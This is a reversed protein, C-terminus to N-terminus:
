VDVRGDERHDIRGFGSNGDAVVGHEMVCEGSVTALARQDVHFFHAHDGGRRRGIEDRILLRSRQEGVVGRGILEVVDLLELGISGEARRDGSPGDGGGLSSGAGSGSLRYRRSMPVSSVSVWVSVSARGARSPHCEETGGLPNALRATVWTVLLLGSHRSVGGNGSV